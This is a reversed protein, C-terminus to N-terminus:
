RRTTGPRSQAVGPRYRFGGTKPSRDGRLTELRMRLAGSRDRKRWDPDRFAMNATSSRREGASLVFPHEDCTISDADISLAELRSLMEPIDIHPKGDITTVRRRPDDPERTTFM